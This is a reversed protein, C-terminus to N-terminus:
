VTLVAVPRIRPGLWAGGDLDVDDRGLVRSLRSGVALQVANPRSPCCSAGKAVLSRADLEGRDPRHELEVHGVWPEDLFGVDDAPQVLSGVQERQAWRSRPASGFGPERHAQLGAM